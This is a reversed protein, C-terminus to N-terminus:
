LSSKEINENPGFNKKHYKTPRFNKWRPIEDTWFKKKHTNWPDLIKEWPYKTFGIKKGHTNRSNSKKKWPCKTPRWIDEHTNRPDLKKKERSQNWSEIIELQQSGLFFYFFVSIFFYMPFWTDKELDVEAITM